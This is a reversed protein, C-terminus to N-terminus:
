IGKTIKRYEEVILEEDKTNFTTQFRNSHRPSQIQLIKKMPEHLFETAKNSGVVSPMIYEDEIGIWRCFDIWKRPEEDFAQKEEDHVYTIYSKAVLRTAFWIAAEIDVDGNFLRFEITNHAGFANTNLGRYRNPNISNFFQLNNFQYFLEGTTSPAAYNAIREPLPSFADYIQDQHRLWMGALIHIPKHEQIRTFSHPMSVHVHLGCTHNITAIERIRRIGEILAEHDCSPINEFEKGDVSGDRKVRWDIGEWTWNRNCGCRKRGCDYHTKRYHPITHTEQELGLPLCEAVATINKERLGDVFKNFKTDQGKLLIVKSIRKTIEPSMPKALEKVITSRSINEVKPLSVENLKNHLFGQYTGVEDPTIPRGSWSASSFLLPHGSERIEELNFLFTTHRLCNRCLCKSRYNEPEEEEPILYDLWFLYHDQSINNFNPRNASISWKERNYFYTIGFVTFSSKDNDVSSCEGCSCEDHYGFPVLDYQDAPFTM